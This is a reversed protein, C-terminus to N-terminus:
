GIVQSIMNCVRATNEINKDLFFSSVGWVDREKVGPLKNFKEYFRDHIKDKSTPAISDFIEYRKMHHTAYPSGNNISLGEKFFKSFKEKDMGGNIVHHGGHQFKCEIGEVSDFWQSYLYAVNESFGLDVALKFAPLRSAYESGTRLFVAATVLDSHNQQVDMMVGLSVAQEVDKTIFCKAVPSRNIVYDVFMKWAAHNEGNVHGNLYLAVESVEENGIKNEYASSTNLRFHCVDRVHYNTKGKVSRIAYTCTGPKCGAKADLEELLSLVIKKEVPPAAEKKRALVQFRDDRMRYPINEMKLTGDPYIRQIVFNQRGILHELGRRNVCVVVDGIQYGKMEEEKVPQQKLIFRRVYRAVIFGRDNRVRVFENLMDPEYFSDGEAIYEKDKTYNGVGDVNILVDGKRFKPVFQNEM